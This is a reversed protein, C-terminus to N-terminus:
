GFAVIAIVIGVVLAVAGFGTFVIGAPSGSQPGSAVQARGPDNPDVMLEVPFPFSRTTGGSVGFPNRCRREVGDPGTWRLMWHQTSTEGGRWVYDYAEGPVRLWSRRRSSQQRSLVIGLVLFILGLCIAGLALLAAVSLPGTQLAATM